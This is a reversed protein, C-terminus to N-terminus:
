SIAFEQCLVTNESKLKQESHRVSSSMASMNSSLVSIILGTLYQAAFILIETCLINLIAKVEWWEGRLVSVCTLLEKWQGSATQTDNTCTTSPCGAPVLETGKPM